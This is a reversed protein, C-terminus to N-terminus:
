TMTKIKRNAPVPVNRRTLPQLDETAIGVIAQFVPSWVCLHATQEMWRNVLGLKDIATVAMQDVRSKQAPHQFCLSTEVQTAWSGRDTCGLQGARALGGFSWHVDALNHPSPHTPFEWSSWCSGCSSWSWTLLAEVDFRNRWRYKCEWNYVDREVALKTLQGCSMWHVRETGLANIWVAKELTYMKRRDGHMHPLM